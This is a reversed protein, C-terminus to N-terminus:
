LYLNIDTEYNLCSNLDIKYVVKTISEAIMDPTIKPFNDNVDFHKITNCLFYKDDYQESLDMGMQCLKQIFMDYANLSSQKLKEAIETALSFLSFANPTTKHSPGLYFVSLVIKCNKNYLQQASSITVENKAPSRCTKVEIRHDNIYFDQVDKDIGTWFNVISEADYKPFLFKNIFLLEGILGAQEEESLICERRNRKLFYQWYLLRSYFKQVAESGKKCPLIFDCLDSCINAFIQWDNNESLTLKLAYRNQFDMVSIDIGNLKLKKINPISEETVFLLMYRNDADKAFFVDFLCEANVRRLSFNGVDPTLLEEWVNKIQDNQQIM